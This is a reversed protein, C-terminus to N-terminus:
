TGAHLFDKAPVECFELYSELADVGIRDSLIRGAEELFIRVVKPNDKLKSTKPLSGHLEPFVRDPALIVVRRQFPEKTFLDRLRRIARTKCFLFLEWTGGCLLDDGVLGYSREDQELLTRVLHWRYATQSGSTPQRELVAIRIYPIATANLIVHWTERNVEIEYGVSPLIAPKRDLSRGIVEAIQDRTKDQPPWTAPMACHLNQSRAANALAKSLVILASPTESESVDTLPKWYITTRRLGM